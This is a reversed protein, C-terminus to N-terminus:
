LPLNRNVDERQVTLQARADVNERETLPNVQVFFMKEQAGSDALSCENEHLTLFYILLQM